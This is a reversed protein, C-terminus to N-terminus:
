KPQVTEPKLELPKEGLGGKKVETEEKPPELKLRNISINYFGTNQGQILEAVVSRLFRKKVLEDVNGKCQNLDENSLSYMASFIVQGTLTVFEAM